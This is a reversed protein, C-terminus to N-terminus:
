YYPKIPLESMPDTSGVGKALVRWHLWIPVVSGTDTSGVIASLLPSALGLNVM